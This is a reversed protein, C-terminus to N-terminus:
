PQSWNSRTFNGASSICITDFNGSPLALSVSVSTFNGTGDTTYVFRPYWDELQLTSRANNFSQTAGVSGPSYVGWGAPSSICTYTTATAPATGDLFTNSVNSLTTCDGTRNFTIFQGPSGTSFSINNRMCSIDGADFSNNSNEDIILWIAGSTSSDALPISFIFEGSSDIRYFQSLGASRAGLKDWYRVYAKLSPTFGRGNVSLLPEFEALREASPPNADFHCYSLVALILFLYTNKVTEPTVM